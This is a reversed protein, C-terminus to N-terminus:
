RAPNPFKGGARKNKFRLDANVFLNENPEIKYEKAYILLISDAAFFPLAIAFSPPACPHVAPLIARCASL